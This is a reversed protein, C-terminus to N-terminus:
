TWRSDVVSQRGGCHILVKERGGPGSDIYISDHMTYIYEFRWGCM